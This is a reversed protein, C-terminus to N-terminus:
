VKFAHIVQTIACRCVPCSQQKSEIRRACTICVALHGCPVFVGNKPGDFCIVCLDEMEDSGKRRNPDEDPPPPARHKRRQYIPEGEESASLGSHFRGTGIDPLEQMIEIPILPPDDAQIDRLFDPMPPEIVFRHSPRMPHPEAKLTPPPSTSDRFQSTTIIAEDTPVNSPLPPAQLRTSPVLHVINAATSPPSAPAQTAPAESPNLVTPPPFAVPQDEVNFSAPASSGQRSALRPAPFLSSPTGARGALAPAPTRTRSQELPNVQLPRRTMIDDSDGRLIGVRSPLPNLASGPRGRDVPGSDVTLQRTGPRSPSALGRSLLSRPPSASQAADHTPSRIRPDAHFLERHVPFPDKCQLGAPCPHTHTTVHTIDDLQTCNPSLCPALPLQPHRWHVQHDPHLKTLCMSGHRCLHVYRSTHARDGLKKCSTFYKCTRPSMAATDHLFLDHHVPMRNGCNAGASCVHTFRLMHGPHACEETMTVRPCMGLYSAPHVWHIQHVGGQRCQSGLPCIHRFSTLHNGDHTLPCDFGHVCWPLAESM